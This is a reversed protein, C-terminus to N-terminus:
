LEGFILEKNTDIFGDVGVGYVALHYKNDEVAYINVDIYDNYAHWYDELTTQFGMDKIGYMLGKAFEKISNIQEETLTDFIIM